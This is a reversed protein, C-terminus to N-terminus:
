IITAAVKKRRPRYATSVTKHVGSSPHPLCGFCTSHYQLLIFYLSCITADRQINIFISKRHVSGHVYFVSTYKSLVCYACKNLMGQVFIQYYLEPCFFNSNEQCTLFNVTKQTTRINLTTKVLPGALEDSLFKRCVSYEVSLKLIRGCLGLNLFHIKEESKESRFKRCM